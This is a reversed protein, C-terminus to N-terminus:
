NWYCLNHICEEGSKAYNSIEYRNYSHEKLYSSTWEYLTAALDDAPLSLKNYRFLNFFPTGKEITLQYLSIHSGALTLAFKLEEQWKELTQDPRAYILDFSYRSFIKSASEIANIAESSSHKRGLVSLDKEDFSQIGLSRFLM